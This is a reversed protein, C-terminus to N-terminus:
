DGLIERIAEAVADPRSLPIFHETGDVKELRGQTSRRALGHQLEWWIDTITAGLKADFGESIMADDSAALVILPKDELGDASAAQAASARLDLGEPNLTPDMDFVTSEERALRIAESETASQTPLAALWRASAEPPRVEALVAGVIDDPHRDAHILANWGGISFGVLLYPPEVKAAALLARLDDVQDKTTRGVEAPQSLGDGARDYACARVTGGLERLVDGWQGTDGGLGSEFIVTPKGTDIPGVCQIHMKRGGGIDLDDLLDHNPATSAPSVV